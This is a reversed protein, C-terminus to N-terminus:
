ALEQQFGAVCCALVYRLGEAPLVIQRIHGQILRLAVAMGQLSNGFADGPFVLDDRQRDVLVLNVYQDDARMRQFPQVSGSDQQAFPDLGSYGRTLIDLRFNCPAIGNQLFVPGGARQRGRPRGQLM